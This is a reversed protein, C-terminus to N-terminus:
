VAGSHAALYEKLKTFTEQSISHELLCAEDEAEEEDVGIKMLLAKLTNHKALTDSAVKMGKETLRIAGTDERTLYGERELKGVAISVSPKSYGRRRAVDIERCWGNEQNLILITELYDESSRGLSKYEM